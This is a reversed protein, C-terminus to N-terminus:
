GRALFNRRALLLCGTAGACLLLGAGHIILDGRFADRGAQTFMYRDRFDGVITPLIACCFLVDVIVSLWWGFKVWKFLAVASMASVSGIVLEIMVLQILDAASPVHGDIDAGISFLHVFITAIITAVAILSQLFRSLRYV